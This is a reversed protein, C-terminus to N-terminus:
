TTDSTQFVIDSKPAMDDRVIFPIQNTGGNDDRVLKALYVGSVADEPVDWSASVAWNGADVLGRADTIPDPQAGGSANITTVLTAGYGSYYGLRYIEIHYAIDEGPAANLNIKFSIEEGNDVSIDTAFGEIQDTIPADWESQPTGPKLNEEVIANSPM